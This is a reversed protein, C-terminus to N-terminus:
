ELSDFAKDMDLKLAMDMDLKLAMLGGRGRKYKMTHFLEHAMISNDQISRGKLFAFQMPSVIKHLLPKFRNFLIKSIIKYNFNTLSIPRFNNVRSPNELKPILAINTHNFEKLMFGGQFFSQVSAVVSSKVIQWCTKYFLGAMGDPGPSKNLGLESIALFIEAEEPISCLALNDDATIVPSVLDFLSDDIIPNSSSFLTSFHDVFFSGINDRGLINSGDAARLCSISNYRRRCAVSAHFFKTNLNTCSLWTERFKQKWLVEDRLLQKQLAGQLFIERAANVISHPGSQIVGIDVM